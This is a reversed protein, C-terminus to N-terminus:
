LAERKADRYTNSLFTIRRAVANLADARQNISDWVSYHRAAVSQDAHGLIADIVAPEFDLQRALETTTSRLNHPTLPDKAPDPNFFCQNRSMAKDLTDVAVARIIDKKHKLDRKNPFLFSEPSKENLSSANIAEKITLCALESLPVRLPKKKKDKIIRVVGGRREVETGSRKDLWIEDFNIDRKRLSLVENPRLGTLLILRLACKTGAELDTDDLNNWFSSIETDDMPRRKGVEKVFGMREPTPLKNEKIIGVSETSAWTLLSSVAWYLRTFVVGPREKRKIGKILAARQKEEEAQKFKLREERLWRRWLEIDIDALAMHGLTSVLHRTLLRRYEKVTSLALQKCYDALYQEVAESVTERANLAKMREISVVSPDIGLKLLKITEVHATAAASYDMEPWLGYRLRKHKGSRDIYRTAWERVISGDSLESVRLVLKKPAAARFETKGKQGRIVRISPDDPPTTNFDITRPSRAM